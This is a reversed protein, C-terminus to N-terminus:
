TTIASNTASNIASTTASATAAAAWPSLVAVTREHTDINSICLAPEAENAVHSHGLALAALSGVAGMDGCHSALKFYQTAPDLEPFLKAGLGMLEVIRNSRQDTDSSILSIQDASIQSTALADQVMEQLMPDAVNGRADISKSRRNQVIRHLRVNTELAMLQAQRADALLFGAAGEGPMQTKGADGNKGTFLKGSDEWDQITAEGLHSDCALVMAFCTQLPTQMRFTDLMLQDIVTLARTYSSEVVPCFSMKAVPWGQQQILHSFWDVVFQRKEGGWNEPLLLMLQLMPLAPLDCNKALAAIYPELEPHKVVQQALEIAVESGIAIARLQETSWDVEARGTMRSWSSLAERQAAEDIAAIRGSLVPFGDQNTLEPDLDLRAENAKLNATLEEASSGHATRIASALLAISLTREHVALSEFAAANGDALKASSAASESAASTSSAFSWAKFSLCIALLLAVPLVFFYLALDGGNPMRNNTRWHFIVALWVLSFIGGIFLSRTLWSKM